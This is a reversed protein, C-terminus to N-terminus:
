QGVEHAPALVLRLGLYVLDVGALSLMVDGHIVVGGDILRDVLDVLALQEGGGIHEVTM